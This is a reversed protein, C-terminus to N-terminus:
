RRLADVGVAVCMMPEDDTGVAGRVEDDYFTLGTAGLRRAYAGLSARGARIGADLQAARYGRDGLAGLTRDLDATM